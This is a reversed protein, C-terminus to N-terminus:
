AAPPQLSPTIGNRRMLDILKGRDPPGAVAAAYIAAAERFFEPGLHAPTVACFGKVELNGNNDFRHIAGRPICLVQGPGIEIPKGDVTFTIVGNLGYITEEYHDHSHAPAMLREGAPVTFEFVAVSGNSDKGTVLFRITIQGAKITEDSPNLRPSVADTAM